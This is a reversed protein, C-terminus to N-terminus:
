RGVAGRGVLDVLADFHLAWREQVARHRGGAARDRRRGHGAVDVRDGAALDGDWGEDASRVEGWVRELSRGLPGCAGYGFCGLWWGVGRRQESYMCADRRQAAHVAGARRRGRGGSCREADSVRIHIWLLPRGRPPLPDLHSLHLSPGAPGGRPLLFPPFRGSRASAAPSGKLTGVSETGGPGPPPHGKRAGALETDGSLRRTIRAPPLGPTAQYAAPSGPATSRTGSSHAAPSGQPRCVQHRRIPPPHGQPRHVQHRKFPRPTVKAPPPGPAAQAPPPHNKHAAASETCNSHAAPRM